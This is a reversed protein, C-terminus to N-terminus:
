SKALVPPSSVRTYAPFATAATCTAAAYTAYRLLKQSLGVSEKDALAETESRERAAVDLAFRLEDLAHGARLLRRAQTLHSGLLPLLPAGALMLMSVMQGWYELSGHRVMSIVNALVALGARASWVAYIPLAHNRAGLWARLTAPLAPRSEAPSALATALTDADAFRAERDRSLCRDIVAGFAPPLGPSVRLVSAPVESAQRAMLAPLSPAEFPLRGSVALYGVVGLAYIDSRGDIALGVAQEPSM